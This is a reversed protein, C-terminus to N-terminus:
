STWLRNLSTKTQPPSVIVPCAQHTGNTNGENPHCFFLSSHLHSHSPSLWTLNQITFYFILRSFLSLLLPSVYLLYLPFLFNVYIIKKHVEISYNIFYALLMEVDVYPM